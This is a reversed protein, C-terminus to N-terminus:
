FIMADTHEHEFSDRTIESTWLCFLDRIKSHNSYGMDRRPLSFKILRLEVTVVYSKLRIKEISFLAAFLRFNMLVFDLNLM